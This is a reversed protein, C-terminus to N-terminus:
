ISAFRHAAREPLREDRPPLLRVAVACRRSDLELRPMELMHRAQDTVVVAGLEVVQVDRRVLRAALVHPHHRSQGVLRLRIRERSRERNRRINGHLQADLDIALAKM